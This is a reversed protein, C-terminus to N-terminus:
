FGSMISHDKWTFFATFVEILTLKRLFLITLFSTSIELLFINVHENSETYNKYLILGFVDEKLFRFATFKLFFLVAFTKQKFKTKHYM